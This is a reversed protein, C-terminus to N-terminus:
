ARRPTAGSAVPLKENRQARSASGAVGYAHPSPTFGAHLQRDATRWERAAARPTAAHRQSRAADRADESRKGRTNRRDDLALNPLPVDLARAPGLHPIM